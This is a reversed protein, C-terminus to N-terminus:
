EAKLKIISVVIGLSTTTDQSRLKLAKKLYFESSDLLGM